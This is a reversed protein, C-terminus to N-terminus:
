SYASTMITKCRKEWSFRQVDIYARQGLSQCLTPNELAKEIHDCFEDLNGHTSLLANKDHHLIKKVTPIGSAVIARGSAMYEFVKLPSTTHIDMITHKMDLRYPLLLCDAMKLYKPGLANPVFGAFVVNRIHNKRAINEYYKRWKKPGGALLFILNKRHYLIKSASLIMDIGKDPYLSGYYVAYQMNPDLCLEQKILEPNEKTAFRGLDVGSELVLIKEPPVGRKVHEVKIKEHITILRKFASLHAVEYIKQLSWHDYNTTHTEVVTPIGMRATFYSLLIHRGYALDYGQEAVFKAARLCYTRDRSLKGTLYAWSSPFLRRLPIPESLGYHKSLDPIRVAMISSKLSSATIVEVAYGSKAFGQAMKMISFSNAMYSPFVGGRLIAIKKRSM